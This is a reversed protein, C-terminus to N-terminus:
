GEQEIVDGDEDDRMTLDQFKNVLRDMVACQKESPTFKASRSKSIISACFKREWETVGSARVIIPMYGVLRNIEGPTRPCVGGTM